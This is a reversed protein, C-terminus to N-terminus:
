NSENLSKAIVIADQLDNETDVGLHYKGKSKIAYIKEGNDMARMQELNRHSENVTQNWQVFSRLFSVKYGYVGLHKKAEEPKLLHM